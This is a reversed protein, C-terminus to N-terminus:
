RIGAYSKRQVVQESTVSTRLAAVSSVGTGHGAHPPAVFCTKWGTPTCKLPEPNWLVSLRLGAGVASVGAGAHGDDPPEPQAPQGDASYGDM